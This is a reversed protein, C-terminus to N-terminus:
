RKGRLVGDVAERLIEIPLGTSKQMDNIWENTSANKENSGTNREALSLEKWKQVGQRVIAQIETETKQIGKYTAETQAKTLANQLFVGLMEGKAKDIISNMTAKKIFTERSVQDLEELVKQSEWVIREITEDLTAGKVTADMEKIKSEIKTLEAVAKQNEIGQTLSATQTKTLETDVGTKKATDAQVNEAQAEMLKTQAQALGAQIGMGTMREMEGGSSPAAGGGVSGGGPSGTTAGGAGGMGYMLAPNLGAKKLQEMQGVAGTKLWMNYQNMQDYDKLRKSAAEQEQMIKIQQEYQRRDNMAGFAMGLIGGTAANGMQQGLQSIFNPM